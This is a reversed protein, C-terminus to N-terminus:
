YTIRGGVVLSRKIDQVEQADGPNAGTGEGGRVHVSLAAISSALGMRKRRPDTSTLPRESLLLHKGSVKSISRLHESIFALDPGIDGRRQGQRPGTM